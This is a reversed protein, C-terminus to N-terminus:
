IIGGVLLGSISYNFQVMMLLLSLSYVPFFVPLNSLGIFNYQTVYLVVKLLGILYNLSIATSHNRSNM